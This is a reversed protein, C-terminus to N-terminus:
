SAICSESIPIRRAERDKTDAVDLGIVRSKMDIKNWTLNIVEGKRMGAYYGTAVIARTHSPPAVMLKDFEEISLVRDRANSDGKLLKKVKKFVRITDDFAKYVPDEGM